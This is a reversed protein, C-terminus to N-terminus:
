MTKAALREAKETIKKDLTPSHGQRERKEALEALGDRLREADGEVKELAALAGNKGDANDFIANLNQSIKEAFELAANYAPLKRGGCVSKIAKYEDGGMMETIIPARITKAAFSMESEDKMRPSLSYFCQFVDRPLSRLAPFREACKDEIEEALIDDENMDAFIKDEIRTSKMVRDSLAKKATKLNGFYALAEDASFFKRKRTKM